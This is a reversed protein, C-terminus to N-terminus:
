ASRSRTERGPAARDMTREAGDPCLLVARPGAPRHGHQPCVAVGCEHCVGDAVIRSIRMGGPGPMQECFYCDM